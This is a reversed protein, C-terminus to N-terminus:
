LNKKKDLMKESSIIFDLDEMECENIMRYYVLFKINNMGLDDLHEKYRKYIDSLYSVFKLEEQIGKNKSRMDNVLYIFNLKKDDDFHNISYLYGLSDYFKYYMDDAKRNSNEMLSIYMNNQFKYFDHIKEITIIGKDLNIDEELEDTEKFTSIIDPISYGKDIMTIIDIINSKNYIEEDSLVLKKIIPSTLIILKKKVDKNSSIIGESMIDDFAEVVNKIYESDQLALRSDIDFLYTLILEYFVINIRNKKNNKFEKNYDTILSIYKSQVTDSKWSNEKTKIIIDSIYGDLYNLEDISDTSISNCVNRAYKIKKNIDHFTERIKLDYKGTKKTFAVVEGM